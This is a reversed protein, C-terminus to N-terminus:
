SDAHGPQKQHKGKKSGRYMEYKMFKCELAGNFLTIRRSPRLGVHKLAEANSSIIWADWGSYRKKLQDGIDGYFGKINTMELREDYPPNTVLVGNEFAPELTLFDATEVEIIDSLGAKEINRQAVRVAREDRDFGYLTLDPTTVRTRAEARVEAWLEPDFNRWKQFGFETRNWQPPLNVAQMGAEILLTGSGCMPDLFPRDITWGSLAVMGAALVENLPAEVNNIRYGRKYLAEGSSDWSLTCLNDKSLHVSLRFDPNRVDINPREETQERFQDVIADKAKLALFRSHTIYKSQTIASVVFTDELSIYQSWDIERMKKYFHRDHKTKFEHFPVLIRLATRLELNARYLLKLDGEFSVARILKEIHQGGLNKIEEALVGELGFLTKVIIKM